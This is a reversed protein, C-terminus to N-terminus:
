WPERRRRGGELLYRGDKVARPEATLQMDCIVALEFILEPHSWYRLTPEQTRDDLVVVRKRMTEFHLPTVKFAQTGGHEVPPVLAWDRISTLSFFPRLIGTITLPGDGFVAHM